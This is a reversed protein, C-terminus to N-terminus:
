QGPLSRLHALAMQVLAIARPRDFLSPEESRNQADPEYFDLDYALDRLIEDAPGLTCPDNFVADQFQRIHEPLQDGASLARELIDIATGTTM